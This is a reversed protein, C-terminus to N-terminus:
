GVLGVWGVWDFWGVWDVGNGRRQYFKLLIKMSKQLAPVENQLAPGENRITIVICDKCKCTESDSRKKLLVFELFLDLNPRFDILFRDFIPDFVFGFFMDFNSGFIVGFHVGFQEWFRGLISGPVVKPESNHWLHDM